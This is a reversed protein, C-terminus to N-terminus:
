KESKVKETQAPAVTRLRRLVEAGAGNELAGRAREAAQEFTWGRGSVYLAAAANLLVACKVAPHGDGLLLDEIRAGNESPEGGALEDL